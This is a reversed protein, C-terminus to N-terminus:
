PDLEFLKTMWRFEAVAENWTRLRARCREIRERDSPADLWEGYAAYFQQTSRLLYRLREDNTM